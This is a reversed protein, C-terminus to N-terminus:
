SLCLSVHRKPFAIQWVEEVMSQATRKPAATLSDEDYLALVLRADNRDNPVQTVDRPLITIRLGIDFRHISLAAIANVAAATSSELIDRLASVHAWVTGRLM